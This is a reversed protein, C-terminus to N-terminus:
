RTAGPIDDAFVIVLTLLMSALESQPNLFAYAISGLVLALLTFFLLIDARIM